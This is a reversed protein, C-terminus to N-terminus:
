FVFIGDELYPSKGPREEEKYYFGNEAWPIEKLSFPLKKRDDTRMKLVNLRLGRSPEKEYTKIFDDYEAGLLTQMRECFQIPLQM